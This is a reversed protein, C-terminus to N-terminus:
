PWKERTSQPRLRRLDGAVVTLAREAQGRCARRLRAILRLFSVDGEVRRAQAEVIPV